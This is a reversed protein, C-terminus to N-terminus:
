GGAKPPVWALWEPLRAGSLVLTVKGLKATGTVRAAFQEGEILTPLDVTSSADGDAVTIDGSIFIVTSRSVICWQLTISEGSENYLAAFDLIWAETQGVRDSAILAATTTNTSGVRREIIISM